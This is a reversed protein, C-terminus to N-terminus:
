RRGKSRAALVVPVLYFSGSYEVVAPKLILGKKPDPNIELVLKNYAFPPSKGAESRSLRGSRYFGIIRGEFFGDLARFMRASPFLPFTCPHIREIFFRGGRRHGLLLGRARRRPLELAQARLHQRAEESLYVDMTEIIGFCFEDPLVTAHNVGSKHRLGM